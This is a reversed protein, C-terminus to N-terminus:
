KITLLFIGNMGAFSNPLKRVLKPYIVTISQDPLQNNCEIIVLRPKITELVKWIHYDNGDIDISLFDIKGEVKNELFFDNINDILLNKEIVRVRSSIGLETCERKTSVVCYGRSDVWLASFGHNIVLNLTNSLRIGDIGFEVCIKDTTGIKSFIHEIVGDEGHQSFVRKEFNKFVEFLM